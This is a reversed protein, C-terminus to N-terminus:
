DDWVFPAPAMPISQVRWNRKAKLWAFVLRVRFREGRTPANRGARWITDAATPNYTAQLIGNPVGAITISVLENRRGPGPPEEVIAAVAPEDVGEEDEGGEDVAGTAIDIVRYNYKVFITTTLFDAGGTTIIIPLTGEVDVPRRARVHRIRMSTQATQLTATDAGSMKEAKSDVFLAQRIAYPPHFVYRARKYDIKGYLRQDIRSVGMRDLGERTIDEGFDQPLDRENNFIDAATERFDFVAQAVLRISAKEIEELREHNAQLDNPDILM